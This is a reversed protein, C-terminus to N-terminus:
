ARVFRNGKLIPVHESSDLEAAVDVDGAYGNGILEQGSASASLQDPLRDRVAEFAAAAMSAEPSFGDRGLDRLAHLVAGAGWLDEIAPRLSGDPWQEGAAIVAVTTSERDRHADIWRAVATANRLSAGIVVPSHEALHWSITSGNPSPLVLRAVPEADRITQASLSIQGPAAKSRSVALAADHERAYRAASEDKWRYPLVEIGADMGVSLATTFSLVDVVIAIGTDAAVSMAGALGWEFRTSWSRQAHAHAISWNGNDGV